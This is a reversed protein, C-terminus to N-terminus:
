RVNLTVKEGRCAAELVTAIKLDSGPIGTIGRGCVFMLKQKFRLGGYPPTAPKPHGAAPTSSSASQSIVQLRPKLVGAKEPFQIM